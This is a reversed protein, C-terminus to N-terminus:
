QELFVTRGARTLTTVPHRLVNYAAQPDALLKLAARTEAARARLEAEGTLGASSRSLDRVRAEPIPLGLQERLQALLHAMGDAFVIGEFLNGRRLAFPSQEEPSPHGLRDALAAKDIGAADLVARLRCGPHDLDAAVDRAHARRVPLGGRLVALAADEGGPVLPSSM